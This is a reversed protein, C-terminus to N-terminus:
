GVGLSEERMLMVRREKRNEDYREFGWVILDEWERRRERTRGKGM